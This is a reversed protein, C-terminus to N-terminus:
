SKEYMRKMENMSKTWELMTSARAVKWLVEKMLDGQYKKRWNEYLHKVCLKHEVNEDFNHLKPVFADGYLFKSFWFSMKKQNSIFTWKKHEVKSMDDMFLELFWGHMREFVLGNSGISSKTMLISNPNSRMSEEMYSRLNKYQDSVVGQIM